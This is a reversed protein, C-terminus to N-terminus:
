NYWLFVIETLYGSDELWSRDMSAYCNCSYSSETCMHKPIYDRMRVKQFWSSLPEVRICCSFATVHYGGAQQRTTLVSFCVVKVITNSLSSAIHLSLPFSLYKRSVAWEQGLYLDNQVYSEKGEFGDVLKRYRWQRSHTHKGCSWEQRDIMDSYVSFPHGHARHQHGYVKRKCNGWM